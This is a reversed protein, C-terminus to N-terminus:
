PNIIRWHHDDATTSDNCYYITLGADLGGTAFGSVDLCLGGSAFNRVWYSGDARPDLWWLQNDKDTPHCPAHVVNTRAPRAGYSPLDMCLGGKDNVIRFLSAGHPGGDKSRVQLNWRQNDAATDDFCTHQQVREKDKVRGESPAGVCMGTTVNKLLVDSASSAANAAARRAAAPSLSKGSSKPKPKPKNQGAGATPGSAVSTRTATSPSPTAEKASKPEKSPKTSPSASPRETAYGGQTGSPAGAGLMTDSAEQSVNQRKEEDEGDGLLLFPIAILVAGVIAAAALMPKKPRGHPSASDDAGPPSGAGAAAVAASMAEESEEARAAASVARGEAEGAKARDGDPQEATSGAATSGAATGRAATAGAATATAGEGDAERGAPRVPTVATRAREGAEDPESRVASSASQGPATPGGPTLAGEPPESSVPLSVAVRVQPKGGVPGPTTGDGTNRQAGM